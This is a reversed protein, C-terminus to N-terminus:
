QTFWTFAGDNSSIEVEVRIRQGTSTEDVVCSYRRGVEVPIDEPCEVTVRAGMQELIGSRIEAEVISADMVLPSACATVLFSCVLLLPKSRM